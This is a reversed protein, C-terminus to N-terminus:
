DEDAPVSFKGAAFGAIAKRRAAVVAPDCNPQAGAELAPTDDPAAKSDCLAEHAKRLDEDGADWRARWADRAIRSIDAPQPVKREPTRYYTDVADLVDDRTLLPFFSFHKVWADLIVQSFRPFHTPDYGSCKALTDRIDQEVLM